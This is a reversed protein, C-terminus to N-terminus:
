KNREGIRYRLRIAALFINNALFEPDVYLQDEEDNVEVFQYDGIETEQIVDVAEEALVYLPDYNDVDTLDVQRAIVVILVFDFRKKNRATKTARFEEQQVFVELNNLQRQGDFYFAGFKATAERPSPTVADAIVLNSYSSYSNLANVIGTALVGIKSVAAM